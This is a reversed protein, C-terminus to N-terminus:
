YGRRKRLAKLGKPGTPIWLGWYRIEEDYDWRPPANGLRVLEKADALSIKENVGRDHYYLYKQGIREAEEVAEEKTLVRTLAFTYTTYADSKRTLQVCFSMTDFVGFDSELLGYEGVKDTPLKAEKVLFDLAPRGYPFGTHVGFGYGRPPFGRKGWNDDEHYITWGDKREVGVPEDSDPVDGGLAERLDRLSV